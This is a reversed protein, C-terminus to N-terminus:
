EINCYTNVKEVHILCDLYMHITTNDDELDEKNFPLFGLSCYWDYKEKLADLTILRIPWNECLERVGKVIYKLLYKGIGKRQYKEDVAIYKIHLSFCDSCMDSVYDAIEEPCDELEIKVFKLMYAGIIKEDYCVIYSYAHQLITPYYSKEILANISANGCDISETPIEKEMKSIKIKAM